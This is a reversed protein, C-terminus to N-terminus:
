LETTTASLKKRVNSHIIYVYHGIVANIGMMISFGLLILGPTFLKELNLPLLILDIISYICVFFGITVGLVSGILIRSFVSPLVLSFANLADDTLSFLNASSKGKSREKMAFNVYQVKGRLQSLYLRLFPNADEIEAIQIAVRSQILCFESTGSVYSKETTQRIIKYFIKRLFFIFGNESRTERVAFVSDSNTREQEKIMELIVKPPDQLDAAFFPVIWKGRAVRLARQISSFVGVNQSNALVRIHPYRTRLDLLKILTDDSSFNDIFIHEFEIGQLTEQLAVICDLVNESENFCPTVVSLTTM